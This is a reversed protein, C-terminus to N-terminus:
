QRDRNNTVLRNIITVPRGDSIDTQKALKYTYRYALADISQPSGNLIYINRDNAFKLLGRVNEIHLTGIEDVMCHLRFDKFKNKTAGEKFVNLLMINIMAKVLVDTGNSGVNALSQVWNTDNDNEVVKFELEFTDSLNIDNHKYRAIESTLLTLLHIATKNKTERTHENTSFLNSTGIDHIHEDNFKKIETLLHVIKNESQVVRLEISKIVGTFIRNVFDTNIDRIVNEIVEEKSMLERTEKGVQRIIEAFLENIRKEFDSIKDEEVFEQLDESFQFYEKQEVLNNRFKFINQSSFNGNFKNIAVQLDNYRQIGTYYKENLEAILNVCRKETRNETIADILLEPTSKFCDTLRFKKYEDLDEDINELQKRINEIEKKLLELDENSRQKQLLHKSLEANLQNELISKQSKFIEVKDFFEKKDKNYETVKDRNDEIFKLELKLENIRKEFTSIKETDAGKDNLEKKKRLELAEIKNRIEEQKSKLSLKIETIIENVHSLEIEIKKNKEREKNNIQKKIEIEVESVAIDANLKEASVREIEQQIQVITKKKEDSAKIMLEDLNIITDNFKQGYLEMDYENKRIVEKCKTIKPQQKKKLNDIEATLQEDIKSIESQLSVASKELDSKEKEYDAVTKVSKGIEDLNLQIGYFSSDTNSIIEPSLGSKFLVNEEDIVKGITKEWNPYENSLWGYLSDKSNEVKDNINIIQSNIKTIQSNIKEKQSNIKTEIREKELEWQKKITEIEATSQKVEIKALRIQESFNHKETQLHGIESEYFSRHETKVKRIKLNSITTKKEEVLNKAWDVKEQHQKKIEDILKQFEKALEEKFHFLNQNKTNIETQKSNEFAVSQNQLQNIQAEFKQNIDTYNSELLEKQQTLNEKEMEWDAKKAVRKIITEINLQVYDDLKTKADKLKGNFVSIEAYIKDKKNQFKTEIEKLKEFLVKEKREEKDLKEKIEPQHNQIENLQWVLEGALKTKENRNFKISAYTTIVVEAHKRVLIEGSKTKETWKKIDGLQNEFDKLHHSYNSLDIKIEEENLAKIITDKIFESEVKYNLFVHQIARPINQYQKSELLSYKRFEAGLGQSNGYLINRYDEYRDIKKSSSIRDKSLALRIKDWNEFINGANDIFYDRNYGGDIFRFSVRGQSKSLLICYAGTERTVEYVIYSNPYPFYFDVFSKKGVPIGLKQQNANYFFLLARLLTSKGVGQTGILHVNGDLNVETYRVNASEIM